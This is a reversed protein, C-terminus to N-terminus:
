EEIHITLFDGTRGCNHCGEPKNKYTQYFGANKCDPCIYEIWRIKDAPARIITRTFYGIKEGLESENYTKDPQHDLTYITGYDPHYNVLKVTTEFMETVDCVKVILQVREGARFKPRWTKM